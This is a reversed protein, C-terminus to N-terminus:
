YNNTIESVLEKPLLQSTIITGNSLLIKSGVYEEELLLEPLNISSKTPTISIIQDVNVWAENYYTRGTPKDNKYEARPISRIYVYKRKNM